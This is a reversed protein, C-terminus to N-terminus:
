VRDSVANIGHKLTDSICKQVLVWIEGEPHSHDSSSHYKRLFSVSDIIRVGDLEVDVAVFSRDADHFAESHSGQSKLFAATPNSDPTLSM